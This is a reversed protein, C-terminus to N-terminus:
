ESPHVTRSSGKSGNTLNSIFYILLVIVGTFFIENWVSHFPSRQFWIALALFIYKMNSKRNAISLAGGVIFFVIIIALYGGNMWAQAIPSFGLGLGNEYYYPFFNYTYWENLNIPKEHRFIASYISSPLVYSMATFYTSDATSLIEKPNNSVTATVQFAAGTEGKSFAWSEKSLSSIETGYVISNRVNTFLSSMMILMIILIAISQKRSLKIYGKDMLIGIVPFCSMFINTRSGLGFLYFLSLLIITAMLYRYQKVSNVSLALGILAANITTKWPLQLASRTDLDAGFNKTRNAIGLVSFGGMRYISYVMMAIGVVFFLKSAFRLHYNSEGLDVKTSSVRIFRNTLSIGLILAINASIYLKMTSAVVPEALQSQLGLVRDLPYGCAYLTFFGIFMIVADSYPNTNYSKIYIIIYLSNILLIFLISVLIPKTTILDSIYFTLFLAMFAVIVSLSYRKAM